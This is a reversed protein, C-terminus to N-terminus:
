SNSLSPSLWFERFMERVTLLLVSTMQEGWIAYLVTWSMKYLHFNNSICPSSYRLAKEGRSFFGDLSATASYRSPRFCYSPRRFCFCFPDLLSCCTFYPLVRGVQHCSATRKENVSHWDDRDEEASEPDEWYNWSSVTKLWRQVVPPPHPLRPLLCRYLITLSSSM